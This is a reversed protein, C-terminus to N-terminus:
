TLFLAKGQLICINFCMKSNEETMNKYLEPTMRRPASERGDIADATRSSKDYVVM